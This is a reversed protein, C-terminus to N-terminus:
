SPCRANASQVQSGRFGHMSQPRATNAYSKTAYVSGQVANGLARDDTIQRLVTLTLSASRAFPFPGM